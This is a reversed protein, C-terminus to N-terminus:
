NAPVDELQTINRLNPTTPETYQNQAGAPAAASAANPNDKLKGLAAVSTGSVM